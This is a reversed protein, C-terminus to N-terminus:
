RRASRSRVFDLAENTLASWTEDDDATVALWEKMPRGKGGDFPAGTGEAILEEVRDRPLKVVLGGGTVMAFISNSVKLTQSGFGRKGSAGPLEVGPVGSFTQALAAFREEATM